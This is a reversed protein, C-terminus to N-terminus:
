RLVCKKIYVYTNQQTVKYNLIKKFFSSNASLVLKHAQLIRGNTDTCGLTVDYFNSEDRFNPLGNNSANCEFSKWRLCIFEQDEM